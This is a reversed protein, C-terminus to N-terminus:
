RAGVFGGMNAVAVATGALHPPNVERGIPWTLVFLRRQRPGHRLFSRLGWLPLTGLTLVLVTWRRFLCCRARHLRKRLQLRSGLSLRSPRPSFSRSPSPRFRLHGRAHKSLAYVDRLFPLGWLMLNGHGLVPLLVRPLAALHTPEGLVELMGRVVEALGPV